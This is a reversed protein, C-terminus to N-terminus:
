TFLFKRVVMKFFICNGRQLYEEAWYRRRFLYPYAVFGSQSLLLFGMWWDPMVVSVHTGKTTTHCAKGYKQLYTILLEWMPALTHCRVLSVVFFFCWTFLSSKHARYQKDIPFNFKAGSLDTPIDVYQALLRASGFDGLKVKGSQTLFVNQM